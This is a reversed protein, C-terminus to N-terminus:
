ASRPGDPRLERCMASPEHPPTGVGLWDCECMPRQLHGTAECHETMRGIDASAFTCGACAYRTVAPGDMAMRPPVDDASGCYPGTNTTHGASRGCACAVYHSKPTNDTCWTAHPVGETRRCTACEGPVGYVSKQQLKSEEHGTQWQNHLSELIDGVLRDLLAERNVLDWITLQMLLAVRFWETLARTVRDREHQAYRARRADREPDPPVPTVRGPGAVRILYHEGEHSASLSCVYVEGEAGAQAIRFACLDAM